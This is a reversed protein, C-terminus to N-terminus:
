APWLGSTGWCGSEEAELREKMRALSRINGLMRAEEAELSARTFECDAECVCLSRKLM